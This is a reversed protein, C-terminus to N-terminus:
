TELEEITQFDKTIEIDEITEHDEINKFDEIIEFDEIIKIYKNWPRWTKLACHHHPDVFMHFIGYTKQM